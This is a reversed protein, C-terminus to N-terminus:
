FFFLSDVQYYNFLGRNKKITFHINQYRSESLRLTFCRRPFKEAITDAFFKVIEDLFRQNRSM